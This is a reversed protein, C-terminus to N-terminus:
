CYIEMFKILTMYEVAAKVHVIDLLINNIAVCYECKCWMLAM